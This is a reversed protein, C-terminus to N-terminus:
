KMEGVGLESHELRPPRRGASWDHEIYEQWLTKISAPGHLQFM